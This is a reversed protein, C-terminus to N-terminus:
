VLENHVMDTLETKDTCPSMTDMVHTQQGLHQQGVSEM